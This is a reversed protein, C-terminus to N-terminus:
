RNPRAEQHVQAQEQARHYAKQCAESCFHIREGGQVESISRNEPLYLGCQPDRVMIGKYVAPSKQSQGRGVPDRARMEIALREVISRWLLRVALILFVIYLLRAIM